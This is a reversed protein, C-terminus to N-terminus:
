GARRKRSDAPRKSRPVLAAPAKEAETIILRAGRQFTLYNWLWTFAVVLRNHAGILFYIHAGSWVLWGTFGTLHLRGMRVVAARRGITALDGYHRYRFPLRPEREEGEVRDAILGGVYRGMQKAASAIGPVPDGKPDSVSATDGIAFIDPEGPLSLDAEVKIRGAHDQEAELWSAAPSAVVGAAWILTAAALREGGIAVGQEDCTSVPANTRVEVGMGRLADAAYKSLNEPLAPLIRPGAEFLVVRSLAPDIRRFDQGLTERAVESIAGAMEVGTPGAGIIVFTMLRRQEDPNGALEAKEFASLIRSRIRTADEIRKLGPAVEAWKDHGFYSHTAGTAVVLYDYPIAISDTIVSKRERDVGMVTAMVTRLNEERRLIARIPWAVDAPSLTATAVQYLLPQFCHHNERDVLTILVPAGRLAKATELGAFGAGLIVIRPVRGGVLDASREYRFAKAEM